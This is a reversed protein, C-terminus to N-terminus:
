YVSPFSFVVVGFSGGGVGFFLLNFTYRGRFLFSSFFSSSFFLAFSHCLNIFFTYPRIRWDMCFLFVPTYILSSYM